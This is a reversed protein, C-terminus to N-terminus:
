GSPKLKLSYFTTDTVCLPIGAPSKTCGALVM